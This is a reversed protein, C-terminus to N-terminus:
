KKLRQRARREKDKKKKTKPKMVSYGFTGLPKSALAYYGGHCYAVLEAQDLCLRGAENMLSKRAHVKVIEAIFMDHTPYERQEIVRCELNLPAEAIMPCAVEDGNIPTLSMEQWKDIDRGSKVGCYDCAKVLSQDPLNIVFEKEQEILGHSHRSKRVSVYAIPPDSNIVGTWAITIINKEEGKGCSIMAAPVPCLMTGGQFSVKEM